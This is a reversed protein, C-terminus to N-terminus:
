PLKDSINSLDSSLWQLPWNVHPWKQLMAGPTQFRDFGPIAPAHMFYQHPHQIVLARMFTLQCTIPFILKMSLLHRWLWNRSFTSEKQVPDSFMHLLKSASIQYHMSESSPFHLTVTGAIFKNGLFQAAERGIEVTFLTAQSWITWM